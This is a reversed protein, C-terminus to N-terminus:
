RDRYAGSKWLWTGGHFVLAVVTAAAFSAAPGCRVLTAGTTFFFLAFSFLGTTLGRLFAAAARAGELRHTTAVLLSAVLPFPTLLGSARSGLARAATTVFLVILAAAATRGLLDPSRLPRSHPPLLTRPLVALAALLSLCAFLFTAGLTLSVRRLSWACALYAVCAAGVTPPWTWFRATWAYCVAFAALAVIGLLTGQSAQAAFAHGRELALVLVVPGSTLPLAAAVGGATPGFRRGLWTALVVLAPALLVRLLLM